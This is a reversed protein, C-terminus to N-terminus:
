RPGSTNSQRSGGIVGLQQMMGLNDGIAWYEVVKGDAIRVIDILGISVRQGTPPIGM